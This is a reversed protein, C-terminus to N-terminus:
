DGRYSGAKRAIAKATPYFQTFTTDVAGNKLHCAYCEAEYPVQTAPTEGDSVFFAWGGKFRAEDRVHIEVGTREETQYQGHKNISGKSNAARGEMLLM